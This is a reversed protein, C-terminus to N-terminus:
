KSIRVRIPNNCHPCKLTTSATIPATAGPGSSVPGVLSDYLGNFADQLRALLVDRPLRERGLAKFEDIFKDIRAVPEDM